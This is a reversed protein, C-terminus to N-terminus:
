EAFPPATDQRKRAMDLRHKAKTVDIAPWHQEVLDITKRMLNDTAKWAEPPPMSYTQDIITEIKEPKLPMTKLSVHM